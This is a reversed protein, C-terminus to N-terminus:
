DEANQVEKNLESFQKYLDDDLKSVRESKILMDEITGDVAVIIAYMRYGLQRSTYLKNSEITITTNRLKTTM